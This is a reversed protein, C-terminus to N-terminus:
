LSVGSLFMYHITPLSPQKEAANSSNEIHRETSTMRVESALAIPETKKCSAKLSSEAISCPTVAKIM